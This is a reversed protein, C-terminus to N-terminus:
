WPLYNDIFSFEAQMEIYTLLDIHRMLCTSVSLAISSASGLLDASIFLITFPIHGMQMEKPLRAYTNPSLFLVYNLLSFLVQYKTWNITVTTDLLLFHETPLRYICMETFGHNINREFCM